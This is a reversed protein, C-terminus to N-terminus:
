VVAQYFRSLKEWEFSWNYRNVVARRGNEGMRQAMNPNKVFYDIASAIAKSDFPDVCLGCGSGEVIERWLPFNSAIVPLGAAMYEFMKVPLSDLYNIVPHLTVLGVLSRKLVDRVGARALFGLENVRAWGPYAKVEDEVALVSFRGVLNLRTPTQLLECARILERIGRIVGIAGVYCVEKCKDSWPAATDIEGMLPFNNIDVTNPNIVLFKDRIFPTAAIIGDFQRSAYREYLAFVNSLIRLSLPNLFPKGLMQKPVDEHWDFIVKKGLKKLKLGAPILEPDHLHYVDADLILAKEFVQRTTKFVRTIRNPPQQGVSSINVGDKYEDEKGDAVILSVNYGHAALSRCQKIFIRPDYRGHVSSLHVIMMNSYM